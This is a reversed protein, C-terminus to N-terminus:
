KQTLKARWVQRDMDITMGVPSILAPIGIEAQSRPWPRAPPSFVYDERTPKFQGFIGAVFYGNQTSCKEGM